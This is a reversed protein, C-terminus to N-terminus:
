PNVMKKKLTVTKADQYSTYGQVTLKLNADSGEITTNTVAIPRISQELTTFLTRIQGITGTVVFSFPIQATGGTAPATQTGDAAAVVTDGGITLGEITVGSKPLLVLQLSSGFALPENAAPLADLVVKWASDNNNARAKLLNDNVLLADVTKKLDKAAAINGTLTQATKAKENVIKQNFMAQKVLTYGFTAGLSLVVGAAAVWIFVTKNAQAIQERKKLGTIKRGKPEPM